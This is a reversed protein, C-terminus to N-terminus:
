YCETTTTTGDKCMIHGHTANFMKYCLQVGGHKECATEVYPSSDCSLILLILIVVMIVKM